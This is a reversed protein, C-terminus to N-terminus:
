GRLGPARKAQSKHIAAAMRKETNVKITKGELHARLPCLECRAVRSQCCHKAVQVILAHFENYTQALKSRPAESMTSPLHPIPTLTEEAPGPGPEVSSSRLADAKVMGPSDPKRLEGEVMARIHDYKADPNVLGHRELIRRTYADVVFIEHQGAYLLISDATEPGIGKIDLLQARLASTPQRFMKTPSGEYRHDLWNVFTKLRAAKQRFFGAPRILAELDKVSITRMGKVSLADARRLAALALEVNKWATNQTLIAGVIVEFSSGAPWWHQPGWAARLTEFYSRIERGAGRSSKGNRRNGPHNVGDV